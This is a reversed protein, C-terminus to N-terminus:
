KKGQRKGNTGIDYNMVFSDHSKAHDEASIMASKWANREAKDDINSLSIKAMKSLKFNADTAM